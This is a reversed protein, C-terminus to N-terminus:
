DREVVMTWSHSTRPLGAGPDAGLSAQPMISVVRWGAAYLQPITVSGATKCEFVTSDSLTGDKTVPKSSCVEGQGAFASNSFALLVAAICMKTPRMPKAFRELRRGKLWLLHVCGSDAEVRRM